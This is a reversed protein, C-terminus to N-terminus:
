DQRCLLSIAWSVPLRAVAMVALAVWVWRRLVRAVAGCALPLVQAGGQCAWHCRCLV